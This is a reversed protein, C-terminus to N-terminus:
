VRSGNHPCLLCAASRAKKEKKEKDKKRKEKKEKKPARGGPQVSLALVSPALGEGGAMLSFVSGGNAWPM